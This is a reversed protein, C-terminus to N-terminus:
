AGEGGGGGGGGKDKEVDAYITTSIHGFRDYNRLGGGEGNDKEVDAYITASIHGFIDYNIFNIMLNKFNYFNIM